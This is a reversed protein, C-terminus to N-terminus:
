KRLREVLKFDNFYLLESNKKMNHTVDLEIYNSEIQNFSSMQNVKNNIFLLRINGAEINNLGIISKKQKNNEFYKMKSNGEINVYKINNEHFKGFLVKGIIQNYYTPSDYPSVVFPNRPIYISDLQNHKIYLQIEDGTVQTDNFWLVPNQRMYIDTYNEKFKMNVCGGELDKGEIIVNNIVELEEKQDNIKITDGHIIISDQPNILKIYCDNYITSFSNRQTFNDGRIHTEQNIVINVNRNFYNVNNKIDVLLTDSQIKRQNADITEQNYIKLVVDKKFLGENCNILFDLNKISTTGFFSMLEDRYILNETLIQYENATVNVLQQFRSTNEKILHSFQQSKIDYDQTKVHGGNVYRIENIEYNYELEDGYIIMDDMKITTNKYLFIISQFQKINISDTQFEITDNAINVNGWGRIAEKYEDILITDCIIKFDEYEVIVNGSFKQFITDHILLQDLTNSQLINVPNQSLVNQCFFFLILYKYIPKISVINKM